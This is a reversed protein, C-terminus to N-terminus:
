RLVLGQNGLAQSAATGGSRLGDQLAKQFQLQERLETSRRPPDRMRAEPGALTGLARQVSRAAAVHLARLRHEHLGARLAAPASDRAGQRVGLRGEHDLAGSPQDEQLVKGTPLTFPEVPELAAADAVPRPSTRHVVRRLARARRVAAGGQAQRLLGEPATQWLGPSPEAARLNVLNLGWRRAIEDRYALTQPFHHVTDLFLVPIDPRVTVAHAGARRVRGPLQVTVCPNAAASSRPRSLTSPMPRQSIQRAQSM